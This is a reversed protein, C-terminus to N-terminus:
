ALGDEPMQELEALLEALMDDDMNQAQAQTIALAMGEVTRAEFAARLPLDVQLADRLRSVLQTLMLSHGGLDLFDDHIGIPEVGLLEQWLAAVIQETENRPADAHLKPQSPAPESDSLSVFPQAASTSHQPRAIWYRRREFPYTPLPVRQRRQDVYLLAWDVSVGAIWLRGLTDLLFSVDPQTEQPHRMSAVVVRQHADPQQKVFTSLTRGPGVELLAWDPQDLLTAACESFRVTHRIHGAWYAPDTAQTEAIWTGTVSSVFPIQPASLAVGRVVAEFQEVAPEMMASHFAHSTHLRRCEIGQATLTQEIGDIAADTGSLVCMAPANIAALSVESDILAQAEAESLPVALMSGTPLAQVLRGRTAVLMLADPLSFVGALCAAVYEGVSHGSMAEPTIGWSMWLQALAYAIVFLAPQAIATQELAAEADDSQEAPYLLSRLDLELHPKLLEACLDVAESFVPETQYLEAAMHAYQAGQGPFMFAIPRDTTEANGTRTSPSTLLETAEHADSCVLTRRHALARRGTQLTYAVDALNLQPHRMLHDRLNAAAADLASETKASLTLLHYPRADSSPEVPPAEEVIVHANTGGIGFSSVGARRPSGNRPWDRLTTNVYFPSSAFDIQPNPQEFNLVPPIQRHKLALITKILGAIGAATDLHGVSPKLAGLACFGTQDTSARFAQTLASIEIPDGLPTGTGHTEIYGITEASIGAIAQAQAIVEAQGDVSPATFGVKMSGDNNIATGRIVTYIYDGDNIADELRKLVVIGVGSGTITGQASADFARCQGDPSQIGGDQYLYGEKQNPSISVGGALCIDSEYSLLSQRALHVAVLSTSCGTNVNLSPGTLNLKYSTRTALYDKDNALVIQYEGIAKMLSANPLLHHLLYGSLGSGAFVGVRGSAPDAACGADELAQWACELFLRQQPDMIEAERPTYGFFSADFQDIDDLVPGAKVYKPDNVLAPDVGSALVEDDTFSVIAGVGDRLNRWFEDADAAGPVRLAVGIVAIGGFIEESNPLDM